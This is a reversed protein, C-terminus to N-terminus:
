GVVSELLPQARAPHPHEISRRVQLETPGHCDLEESPMQDAVLRSFSTKKALGAGRARQVMRVNRSNVLNPFLQALQEDRHREILALRENLAELLTAEADLFRQFGKALHRPSELSRVTCSNDVTVDLRRVDQY